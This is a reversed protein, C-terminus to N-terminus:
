ARAMLVRGGVEVVPLEDGRKKAAAAHEFRLVDQQLRLEADLGSLHQTHNNAETATPAGAKSNAQLYGIPDQQARWRLLARLLGDRTAAHADSGFLDTREGPDSVRNFLRGEDNEPFYALKWSPTVLAFARYETAVAVTRPSPKGVRLAAVLDFGQWDRPPTMGAAAVTTATLDLTTAFQATSNAAIVGPWRLLFPVRLAQELFTHKDNGIGHDWLQSGHDSWFAVMTSHKLSREDLFTLMRGVQHDVYAALAYYNYRAGSGGKGTPKTTDVPQDIYSMNAKGGPFAPPDDQEKGLLGVLMRTQEPLAGIDGPAYDLAPLKVGDYVHAWPGDPVWDPPHPSIMSLYAFWRKKPHAAMVNDIWQMTQNVLYTELFDSAAVDKGRMDTNGTHEDLHDISDVPVPNFHTKGIMATSYNAAKLVDFFPTLGERYTTVGNEYIGHVPVHVGTLVSTRSPSCVPSATHAETFRVGEAALRDLFPSYAFSNGYCGLTSTRQQDSSMWLIHPPHTEAMANVALVAAPVFLM